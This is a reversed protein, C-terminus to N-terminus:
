SNEGEIDILAQRLAQQAAPPQASVRVWGPLGFSAADRVQIGRERLRPALGPRPPRALWFHTCSPLQRWRRDALMGRQAATWDRLRARADALWAQTDDDLWHTLLAVGEASLVWSPALM